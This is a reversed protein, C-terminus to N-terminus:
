APAETATATDSDTDTETETDTDTDAETDTRAPMGMPAFLVAVVIGLTLTLGFSQLAPTTSLGLMGFSLTTTAASLLVGCWVAGLDANDRLCGERLFIAYNVGVGLVLMLALWNFLSLPARAYGSVALAVGIALAVPLMVRAGGRWGYRWILLGAVLALAAILWYGSDARWVGFLHSVSAPLDVFTAGSTAHAADRLVPLGAPTVHQPMVIAAYDDHAGAPPNIWLYQFPQSWPTARWMDVTLAAHASSAYDNMWADVVHTRFGAGALLARLATRDAFVTKELWARSAQQTAVSPVFSSVSQWGSIQGARALVDLKAGLTEARELTQEPTAGRVVFFQAGGDNGAVDRITQEQAALSPDRRVLLHVDDDNTLHLWGPVAIMALVLVLVLSRRGHLLRQWRALWTAASAFLRAPRRKPAPVLLAPLLSLVSVFATGIGVIAFCAIQRLAPFPVGMLVIYGLLSTAAAVMLAPRVARIGANAQWKEGADLYVIFYQISYDVAEGILSAGFVLTLLHLQGFVFLTAALACLVGLATSVFGLALLRPARFVLLMLLAIGCVSVIGILHMEHEATHRAASAYFVAGMKALTAHPADHTLAQSARAVAADVDHQVAADYASGALTALILVNTNAGDHTVLLNDEVQMTSTALPLEALWHELWGFPDAGLDTQLPGYSPDYLPRYLRQILAERWAQPGAELAKRDATTLLGFRYHLYFSAIQALNFPPLEAVVSRFTRGHDAALAAGFDKAAAKVRADDSGSVVFVARDDFAAELRQTAKSVVPDTRAHPLLTLLNTQLAAGESLRWACYSGAVLALLLWACVTRATHRMLASPRAHNM